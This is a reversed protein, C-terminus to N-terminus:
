RVGLYISALAEHHWGVGGVMWMPGMGVQIRWAFRQSAMSEVCCPPTHGIDVLDPAHDGFLDLGLQCRSIDIGTSRSAVWRGGGDVYTGYRGTDAM